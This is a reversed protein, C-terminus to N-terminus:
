AATVLRADFADLVPAIPTFCLSARSGIVLTSTGLAYVTGSASPATYVPGGSDGQRATASTCVVRSGAVVRLIRAVAAGRRGFITGRQDVGSTRGTFAMARGALPRATGIVAWPPRSWGRWVFPAAGRDEGGPVRLLLSDLSTRVFLSRRVTGLVVGPQPPRRLATFERTVEGTDEDAACHGASLARTVSGVRVPFAITCVATDDPIPRGGVLRTGSLILERGATVALVDPVPQGPFRARVVARGRVAMVEAVGGARERSAIPRWGGARLAAPDAFAGAEECSTRAVDVLESCATFSRDATASAPALLLALLALVPRRV